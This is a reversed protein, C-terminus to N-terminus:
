GAPLLLPDGAPHQHVAHHVLLVTDGNSIAIGSIGKEGKDLIGNQNDDEYVCGEVWVTDQALCRTCVLSSLLFFFYIIM